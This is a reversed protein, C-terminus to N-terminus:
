KMPAVWTYLELYICVQNNGHFNHQVESPEKWKYKYNVSATATCKVANVKVKKRWSKVEAM